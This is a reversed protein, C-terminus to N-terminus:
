NILKYYIFNKKIYKKDLKKIIFYKIINYFLVFCNKQIKFYQDFPNAYNLFVNKKM